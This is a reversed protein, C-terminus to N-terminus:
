EKYGKRELEEKSLIVDVTKGASDHVVYYRNKRYYVTYDEKNNVKM